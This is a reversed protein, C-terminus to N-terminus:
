SLREGQTIRLGRAWDTASMPRKGQPQVLGLLVVGSGTGVHVASKTVALEGPKLATGVGGDARQLLLIKLRHDRFTTWAGPTPTFARVHRDVHLSPSDWRLRSDDTTVKPAFSVGESIQAVPVLEGSEIGDLTQVLLEAGAVALRDLLDGSTDRPGITETVTGFIPGTDLGEQLQFTSAGTVEDGRLVAHQVPAAGRWAPLLSFHLNVWGYRPVRLVSPPILAGYAVIPCCDPTLMTLRSAFVDDTPRVPQLLEIGRDRAITAIASPALKRGRGTPADPRSVVAIVEHRSGLLRQLSPVSPEATGAFVLRM